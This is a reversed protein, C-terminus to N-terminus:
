TRSSKPLSFGGKSEGKRRSQDDSLTKQMERVIARGHKIRQKGGVCTVGV